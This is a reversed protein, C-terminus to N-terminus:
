LTVMHGCEDECLLSQTKLNTPHTCLAQTIALSDINKRHTHIATKTHENVNEVVSISGYVIECVGSRKEQTEITVRLPWLTHGLVAYTGRSM